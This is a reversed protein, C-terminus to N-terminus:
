KMEKMLTAMKGTYTTKFVGSKEEDTEKWWVRLMM